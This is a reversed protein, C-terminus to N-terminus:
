WSKMAAFSIIFYLHLFNLKIFKDINSLVTEGPKYLFNFSNNLYSFKDDLEIEVM